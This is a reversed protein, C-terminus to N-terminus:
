FPRRRPRHAGEYPTSGITLPRRQTQAWAAAFALLAFVGVVAILMFVTSGPM